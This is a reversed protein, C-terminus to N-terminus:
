EINEPIVLHEIEEYSEFLPSHAEAHEPPAEESFSEPSPAQRMAALQDRLEGKTASLLDRDPWSHVPPGDVEKSKQQVWNLHKLAYEVWEGPDQLRYFENAAGSLGAEQLAQVMMEFNQGRPNIPEHFVVSPQLAIARTLLRHLGHEDM